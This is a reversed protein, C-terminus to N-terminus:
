HPARRNKHRAGTYRSIYRTDVLLISGVKKLYPYIPSVKIRDNFLGTSALKLNLVESRVMDLNIKNKETAVTRLLKSTGAYKLAPLM